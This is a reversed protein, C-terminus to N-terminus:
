GTAELYADDGERDTRTRAVVRDVSEGCLGVQERYELLAEIEEASLHEHVRPEELLAPKLPRGADFAAMATEYVITHATQKGVKKALALMVAESLVYGQTAELNRRMADRDVELAAVMEKALHLSAGAIVCATPIVAWEVKWSRGDREHEHVLSETVAATQHRVLRSLTGLHEAIEPNRKHPMTISGVVGSPTGERVEGIETRQLNYVEHGIKDMTAAVLTLLTLCEAVTDRATNWTIEPPDLGLRRCFREQVDFGLDGFSSLSGVGGALQGVSLRPRLAKLRELHRRVERVWVAVKFGFTIPLGAQGHTRGVMLTDRHEEALDLLTGEIERLDRFVIDWVRCLALATWTDTVDQVTAGYYVYEGADGRCADQLVRILGLTSHGTEEYGRRVADLDLAEVRAVRAIEEAAEPPILGVETQAQALAVIIDLWAQLRAEEDFIARMEATSWASHYIRSDMVHIPM